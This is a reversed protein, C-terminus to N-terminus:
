FLVAAVRGWVGGMQVHDDAVPIRAVQAPGPTMPQNNADVIIIAEM